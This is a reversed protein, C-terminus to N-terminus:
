LVEALVHVLWDIEAQTRTETVCYLAVQGFEPFEVSVDKGGLIGKQLLAQNIDAVSRGTASFDVLFENFHPAAFVPARVGPLKNLHAMAYGARQMNTAGLDRMGRPGLLAMYVGAGIAMLFASTGSISRAAERTGYFIRHFLAHSTYAREGPVSTRLIGVMLMPLARTFRDENKCALIGLRTGGCAMPLGLSQGDGCAIDCDYQGPPALVGLSTPNVGAILLAGKAHAIRSIEAAQTEVVGLYGPNELYVAATRESVKARLDALDIIGTAPEHKVRVVDFWPDLYNLMVRFRDPDILEPLVLQRRGTVRSAMQLADGSATAGDYVASGVVDMELLDGMMSQYEFMAMFRGHDTVETGTYATLFESRGMVEGLLAPSYHDYCGAGLFSLYEAATRDRELAASVLRGVDAESMPAHPLDLKGEFRLGAPIEEYIRDVSDVGIEALMAERMGPSSNPIFRHVLAETM